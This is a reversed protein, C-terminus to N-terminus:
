SDMDGRVSDHTDKSLDDGKIHGIEM